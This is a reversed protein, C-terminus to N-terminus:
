SPASSSDALRDAVVEAVLQPEGEVLLDLPEAEAEVVPDMRAVEDREAHEVDLAHPHEEGGAEHAHDQEGHQDADAAIEQDGGVQQEAQERQAEHGEDGPARRHGVEPQAGGPELQLLPQRDQRPDHLLVEAADAHHAGEGGLRKSSLLNSPAEFARQLERVLADADAHTLVLAIVNEKKAAMPSTSQTPPWLTMAPSIVTPVSVENRVKM